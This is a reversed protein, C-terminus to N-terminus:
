EVLTIKSLASTPFQVSYNGIQSGGTINLTKSILDVNMIGSSGGSFDLEAAPVYLIGAIGGGSGGSFTFKQTDTRSQFFLVGSYPGPTTPASLNSSSSGGSFTVAGTVYFTVGSGNLTGGGSVTFNGNIVYLGPSLTAVKGAPVSLGAFCGQSYNGNSIITSTCPSTSPTPLNALPDSFPSTSKPLTPNTKPSTYSGSNYTSSGGSFSYSGPTVIRITKANIYSGGSLSLASGSTSADYVGCQPANIYASGSSITLDTGSTGLTFICGTSPALEGVARATVNMPGPHFLQIFVTSTPQSVLAEVHATNEAGTHPGLSPPNNVTIVAGNTGSTVGNQAAAAQGAATISAATVSPDELEWAGAIAAADAASQVVRHQHFLIGVDIALGLFGLLVIMSLAVVFLAQGDCARYLGRLSRTPWPFEM